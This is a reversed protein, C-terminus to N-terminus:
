DEEILEFTVYKNGAKSVRLVIKIKPKEEDPLVETFARIACEIMGDDPELVTLHQLWVGPASIVRTLINDHKGALKILEYGIGMILPTLLLKTAVRMVTYATTKLLEPNKTILLFVPDIFFSVFIGVILM